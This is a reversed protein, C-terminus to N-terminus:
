RGALLRRMKAPTDDDPLPTYLILRQESHEIHKFAAHEFLMRGEVPHLIEKRGDTDGKVEHQSWWRRIAAPAASIAIAAPSTATPTAAVCGPPAVGPEDAPQRDHADARADDDRPRMWATSRDTGACDAPEAGPTSLLACCIPLASPTAM